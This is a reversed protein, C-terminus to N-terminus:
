KSEGKVIAMNLPDWIMNHVKHMYFLLFLEEANYSESWFITPDENYYLKRGDESCFRYFAELVRFASRELELQILEILQDVKPLWLPNLMGPPADETDTWCYTTSHNPIYYFDGNEWKGPGRFKQIEPLDVMTIYQLSFHKMKVQLEEAEKSDLEKFDM